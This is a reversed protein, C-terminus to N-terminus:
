SEVGRLDITGATTSSERVKEKQRQVPSMMLKWYLGSSCVLSGWEEEEEEEWEWEGDEEEM